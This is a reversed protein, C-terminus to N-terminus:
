MSGTSLEYQDFLISYNVQRTVDQNKLRNKSNILSQQTSIDIKQVLGMKILDHYKLKVMSKLNQTGERQEISFRDLVLLGKSWKYKKWEPYISTTGTPKKFVIKTINNNEISYVIENHESVSTNKANIITTKNQLEFNLEYDALIGNLPKPSIYNIKNILIKEIIDEFYKFEDKLQYISQVTFNGKQDCLKFVIKDTKQSLLKVNLFEQMEPSFVQVCYNNLGHEIPYFYQADIKKLIENKEQAIVNLSFFAILFIKFM